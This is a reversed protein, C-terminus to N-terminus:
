NWTQPLFPLVEHLSARACPEISRPHAAPLMGFSQPSPKPDFPTSPPMQPPIKGKGLRRVGFGLGVGSPMPPPCSLIDESFRCVPPALRTPSRERDGEQFLCMTPATVRNTREFIMPPLQAKEQEPSPKQSLPPGIPDLRPANHGLRLSARASKKRSPSKKRVVPPPVFEQPVAHCEM